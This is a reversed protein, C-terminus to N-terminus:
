VKVEKIFNKRNFLKFVNIPLSDDRHLKIIKFFKLCWIFKKSFLGISFYPILISNLYIDIKFFKTTKLSLRIEGEIFYVISTIPNILTGKGNCTPCKECNDIKAIPKTRQRTIQMVNFKSLPLVTVNHKEDYLLEKMREYLLIRNKQLKMDIFDISIIGGMDRLTLQKVIEEAALLNVSLSLEEQDLFNELLSGSNVDIVNMAETTEIILYCGDSFMVKKGLLIKLQRDIDKSAFLSVTKNNYLEINCSGKIVNKLKNKLDNYTNQNDVYINKINDKLKDQIVKLITDNATYIKTGVKAIRIRDICSSWIKLLSIVDNLLTKKAEEENDFDILIEVSTRLIIGFNNLNLESKIENLISIMKNRKEHNKIKKSLKIENSFIVLIVFNGALTIRSSLRPGKNFIPEKIVQALIVDGENIYDVTYNYDFVARNEREDIKYTTVKVKEGALLDKCFSNLTLSRDTLDSFHMFGDPSCNFNIFFSNIGLSKKRVVGLIIDGISFENNKKEVTYDVIKGDKTSAVKIKDIGSSIYVNLSESM